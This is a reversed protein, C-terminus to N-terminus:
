KFIAVFSKKVESIIEPLTKGDWMRLSQYIIGVVLMGFVSVIMSIFSQSMISYHWQMHEIILEGGFLGVGASFTFKILVMASLNLKGDHDIDGSLALAFVAGITVAFVKLIWPLASLTNQPM